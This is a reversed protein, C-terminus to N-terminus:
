RIVEIIGAAVREYSVDVQRAAELASKRRAFDDDVQALESKKMRIIQPDGAESEAITRRFIVQWIKLNITEHDTRLTYLLARVSASALGNGPVDWPEPYALRAHRGSPSRITNGSHRYVLM